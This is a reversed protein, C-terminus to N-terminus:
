FVVLFSVGFICVISSIPHDKGARKEGGAGYKIALGISEAHRMVFESRTQIFGSSEVIGKETCLRLPESMRKVFCM